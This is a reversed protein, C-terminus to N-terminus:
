KIKGKQSLADYLLNVICYFIDTFEWGKQRERELTPNCPNSCWPWDSNQNIAIKKLERERERERERYIYINIYIYVYIYIYM